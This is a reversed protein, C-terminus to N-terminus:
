PSPKVFLDWPVPAEYDTIAKGNEYHTVWNNSFVRRNIGDGVQEVWFSETGTLGQWKYKSYGQMWIETDLTNQTNLFEFLAMTVNYYSQVIDVGEENYKAKYRVGVERYKPDVVPGDLNVYQSIVKNLSQAPVTQQLVEEPPAAPIIVPGSFGAERLQKVLIAHLGGMVGGVNGTDIIDPKKTLARTIIPAFDRTETSFKEYGLHTYGLLKGADDAAKVFAPADPVDAELSLVTKAEPYYKNTYSLLKYDNQPYPFSCFYTYPKKPGTM